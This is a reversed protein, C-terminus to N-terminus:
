SYAETPPMFDASWRAIGKSIRHEDIWGNMYLSM